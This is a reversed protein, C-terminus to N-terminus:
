LANRIQEETIGLAAARDKNVDITLQPNTIQLDSTVDRLGPLEALRRELAPRRCLARGHRLKAAHVSVPKQLQHRRHQHEAGASLVREGGAGPATRRRLDQIVQFASLKREGKPKLAIFMRGTNTTRSVGTAGATSVLYAVNPDERVVAAVKKQRDVMAEFSTDTAAEVTATIFGNDEM